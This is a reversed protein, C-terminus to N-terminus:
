KVLKKQHLIFEDLHAKIQLLNPATNCNMMNQILEWSISGGVSLQLDGEKEKWHDTLETCFGTIRLMHICNSLYELKNEYCEFYLKLSHTPAIDPSICHEFIGALNELKVQGTILGATSELVVKGFLIDM